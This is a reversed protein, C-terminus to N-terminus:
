ALSPPSLGSHALRPRQPPSRDSGASLVVGAQDAALVPQPAVHAVVIFLPAPAAVATSPAQAPAIQCCAPAQKPQPAPCSPGCCAKPKPPQAVLPQAAVVLAFAASLLAM